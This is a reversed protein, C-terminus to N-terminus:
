EHLENESMKKIHCELSLCVPRRLGCFKLICSVPGDKSKDSCTNEVVSLLILFLVWCLYCIMLSQAKVSAFGNRGKSKTPLFNNLVSSLKKRGMFTTFFLLKAESVRWLINQRGGFRCMVFPVGLEDIIIALLVWGM